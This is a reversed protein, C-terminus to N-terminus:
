SRARLFDLLGDALAQGLLEPGDGQWLHAHGPCDLFGPEYVVGTDVHELLAHPGPWTARDVRWLKVGGAIPGLHEGLAVALARSEGTPRYFISGRVPWEPRWGINAHCAVLPIDHRKAYAQRIRYSGWGALLAEAGERDLELACATAYRWVLRRESLGAHTAPPRGTGTHGLDLVVPRM